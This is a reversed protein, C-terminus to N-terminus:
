NKICRVSNGDSRTVVGFLGNDLIGFELHLSSSGSITSSWYVGGQGVSVINGFNGTASLRGGAATFKLVSSFAGSNTNASWSNQETNLESQSPIRYGSPCPNNLGNVGQWLNNNSPSRWNGPSSNSVLIFSGNAPQDTSSLTTTTPSTRCQHGDSHRGWQYLDGYAAADTSSTAVQTAGLNRDMWTKGTAPNTVDVIQTPGSACFISGAPYQGALASQVNITFTCSQGGVTIAFSATGAASPTGSITYVLTGSGSALLGQSISATLGTVGTSSVTQGAYYGGNGGTYPVSTSVGIAAQGATLTGTTTANGCNLAGLTAVTEKICRIACGSARGATTTVANSSSLDLYKSDSGSVSNTWLAAVVGVNAITGNTEFRDGTLNFKLFSLFAGNINNSAWSLRESNVESETPVRYGSPCPNNVGNVGQWLNTNQPSRWDFPANPALIFNGNAPQDTSSLTSTTPSTRCQHGDSRRGWQYLDGYAAADTSSTAVQSAGLNRDMWTKGTAPNTVDVIQTPGSACFISGAPYQGALASQVNITFTCSQGGVTIAFSATGSTAPTGSITYSLSGAGSALTGAALNATLGTVGTSNVTQATYTGGNGGTYPVSSNVGSAATGQFLAGTTTASVCNLATLAAPPLNVNLSLTCSQGGINLAFSATGSSLPTGTISLTLTGSGNAFTGAGLNATLGTVGTSSVSQTPYTGGNGGTYPISSNVGSAALGQTLTGANSAAVCNLATITGAPLVGTGCWEYWIGGFFYNPCGSSINFIILGDAPNLIANRQATTMRPPLFGQATSNMETIASANPSSTGIGIAGGNNHFNTGNVVWQTGDWYPTNGATSGSSLLGAPGQPGTAGTAGIPGPVGAPGAPGSPGTLGTLVPTTYTSGDVYTFTISGNGNDAVSSIGNGATGAHFAYPVTVLQEPATSSTVGNIVFDVTLYYKNVTWPINNFITVTGAVYLGDGMKITVLGNQDTTVFHEEQYILVGLENTINIFATLPGQYPANPNPGSVDYLTAQYNIYPPPITQSFATSITLFTLISLLTKM